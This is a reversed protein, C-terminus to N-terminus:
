LSQRTWTDKGDGIRKKMKIKTGKRVESEVQIEDMFAEMFVFGMGSRDLEPRTTFLPQMATKIDVIGMGEDCVEIYLEQGKIKSIIRIKGAQNEYGHIIANTVAESVATKVDEVEELTPNMQTMFAAVTVRAFGENESMSDFIVEMENTFEM